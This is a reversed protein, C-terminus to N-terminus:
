PVSRTLEPALLYGEGDSELAGKLGLKRLEAVAVYVRNAASRPDIQEGPWGATFLDARSLAAGPQAYHAHALAALVRRLTSRRALDVFSGDALWLGRGDLAVRRRLASAQPEARLAVALEVASPRQKMAPSLAQVLRSRLPEHLPALSAADRGLGLVECVTCALSFVDAGPTAPGGSLVEPAQYRAEGLVCGPHTLTATATDRPRRSAAVGFDVLVAGRGACLIINEPKVDRHVIGTRHLEALADAIQSLSEHAQDAGLEGTALAERLTPGPIYEMVAGVHGREEYLEYGRVLHPHRVERLTRVERLLRLVNEASGGPSLRKIAVHQRLQRDYAKFVTSTSGEGLRAEFQYREGHGKVALEGLQSNCERRAAAVLVRLADSWAESAAQVGLKDHRRALLTRLDGASPLVGEDPRQLAGEVSAVSQALWAHQRELPQGRLARDLEPPRAFFRRYARMCAAWAFLDRVAAPLAAAEPPAEFLAASGPAPRELAAGFGFLACAGNSRVLVSSAGLRGLEQGRAHAHELAALLGLALGEGAAFAQPPLNKRAWLALLSELDDLVEGAFSVFEIEGASSREELQAVWPHSLRAHSEALTDLQSRVQAPDADIRGVLVAADQAAHARRCVFLRLSGLNRVARRSVFRDLWPVDPAVDFMEM